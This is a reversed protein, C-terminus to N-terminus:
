KPKPAMEIKSVVIADGTQEGTLKVLHGAHEMLAGFNQNAIKLVKGGTVFVYDYHIQICRLTCARDEVEGGHNAGCQSDSITGTWTQPAALAITTAAGVCTMVLMLALLQKM